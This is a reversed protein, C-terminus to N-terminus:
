PAKCSEKLVAIAKRTEKVEFVFERRSAPLTIRITSQSDAFWALDAKTIKTALGGANGTSANFTHPNKGDVSIMLTDIKIKNPGYLEAQYEGADCSLQFSVAWVGNTDISTSINYGRAPPPAVDVYIRENLEWSGFGTGSAAVSPFAPGALLVLVAAIKKLANM